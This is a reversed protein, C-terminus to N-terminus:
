ANGSKKANIFQLAKLIESEKYRIKNGIRYPKLIGSKNWNHVTVLSVGFFRAVEKRTMLKDPQSETQSKQQNLLTQVENKIQQILETATVGDIQTIKM